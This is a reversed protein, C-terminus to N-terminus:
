SHLAIRPRVADSVLKCVNVRGGLLEPCDIVHRLVGLLLRDRVSPPLLTTSTISWAEGKQLLAASVESNTRHPLDAGPLCEKM